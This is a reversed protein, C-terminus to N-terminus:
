ELDKISSQVLKLDDQKDLRQKIVKETSQVVLDALEKRLDHHLKSREQSLHEEAEKVIRTASDAGAKEAETIIERARGQADSLAQDAQKRAASLVETAKVESDHLVKETEKAQELSKELVERREELTAVLKPFVWRRLILLVLLFTILQFLFSKLNLGLASIGGAAETEAEAFQLNLNFL